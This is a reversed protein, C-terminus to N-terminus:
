VTVAMAPSAFWWLGRGDLHMGGGHDRLVCGLEAGGITHSATCMHDSKRRLTQLLDM